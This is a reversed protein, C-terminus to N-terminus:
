FSRVSKQAAGTTCSHISLTLKLAPHRGASGAQACFSRVRKKHQAQRCSQIRSLPPESLTLRSPQIGGLVALRPLSLGL